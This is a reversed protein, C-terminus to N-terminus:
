PSPRGSRKQLNEAMRNITEALDVLMDGRRLTIQQSFDGKGIAELTRQIRRMPGIIRHSQKIGLYFVIPIALLLEVLLTTAVAIFSVILSVQPGQGPVYMQKWLLLSSILSSTAAIALVAMFLRTVFRLQFATDTLQQGRPQQNESAM